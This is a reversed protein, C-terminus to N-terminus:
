MPLVKKCLDSYKDITKKLAIIGEDEKVAPKEEKGVVHLVGANLLQFLIKVGRVNKDVGYEPCAQIRFHFPDVPFDNLVQVAELFRDL